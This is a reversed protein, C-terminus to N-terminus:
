MAATTSDQRVEGDVRCRVTLAQPDTIEDRTVRAPGLPCFTDFSKGRTWQSGPGMQIARASVDNAATYGAVHTLAEAVTVAKARRGIIVALEAEYDLDDVGHPRIVEDNPGCLASSFKAFLVPSAPLPMGSEQAHDAYNLGVGIIK